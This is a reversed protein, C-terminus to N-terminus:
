PLRFVATLVSLFCILLNDSGDYVTLLRTLNQWLYKQTIADDVKKFWSFYQWGFYNIRTFGRSQRPSEWLKVNEPFYSLRWSHSGGFSV